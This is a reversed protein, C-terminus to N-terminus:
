AGLTFAGPGALIVTLAMVIYLGEVRWLYCAVCDVPDVPNQEFVKDRATCRTAFLTLVLLGLAAFAPLIGAVLALGGFVEVIAATWAFTRPARFGCHAVKRTLSDHRDKNLWRLNRTVWRSGKAGIVMSAPKSPDYFFRFRALFYFAGLTVRNVALAIPAADLGHTLLHAIEM